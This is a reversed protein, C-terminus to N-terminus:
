RGFWKWGMWGVVCWVGVVGGWRMLGRQVQKKTFEDIARGDNIRPFEVKVPMEVGLLKCLPEWGESVDFYVLREKPVTRGLYAIHREWVDRGYSWKEGPVSYLEGWRGAQMHQIYHPFHRIVPVWFVILALLTQLSTSSTQDMSAAWSHMQVTLSDTPSTTGHRWRLATPYTRM